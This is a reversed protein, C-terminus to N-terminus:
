TFKGHLNLGTIVVVIYIIFDLSTSFIWLAKKSIGLNKYFYFEKSKYEKIYYFILAFTIIKFWFLPSYVPLGYKFLFYACVFSILISAFCFSKYFTFYLKINKVNIDPNTTSKPAFTRFKSKAGISTYAVIKPCHFNCVFFCSNTLVPTKFDLESLYQSKERKRNKCV